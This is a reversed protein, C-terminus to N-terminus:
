KEQNGAKNQSQIEDLVDLVRPLDKAYTAIYNGAVVKKDSITFNRMKIGQGHQAWYNALKDANLEGTLSQATPYYGEEEGGSFFGSTLNCLCYDLFHEANQEKIAPNFCVNFMYDNVLKAIEGGDAAGSTDYYGCGVGAGSGALKNALQYVIFTTTSSRTKELLIPLGESTDTQTARPSATGILADDSIARIDDLLNREPDIYRSKFIEFVRQSITRMGAIALRQVLLGDTSANMDDHVILATHVNHIQGQRDASCQLRFLLLDFLGLVGRSDEALRDILGNASHKHEGFIRHAIEIVNAPTNANRKGGTRGWGARDLLMILNYISLGRLGRGGIDISSYRPLYKVIMNIADDAALNKFEHSRSVLIRWFQEHADEGGKLDFESGSLVEEVTAGGIIRNVADQYLRFTERPQPTAFRVILKLYKELNRHPRSNFCARSARVSEDVSGYVGLGLSGCGFLQELLFADSGNNLKIFESFSESNVYEYISSVAKTKISFIGSRGETEEHYIRRFIGPYNLHLLMLNILDAAHFDTRSLDTKEIQMMLVANVFRKIKRMDGILPMYKASHDGELINALESLVSALKLMTESPVSLYKDEDKNWERRLFHTLASSDVFLSLKINVFKEIFQRAREGDEKGVFLNEMDYCLIYTAQTLKFTRQVTFLVNNVAKPELRDLDDIVIILRRHIRKLVDDIEELLEDITESAPMLSLKFGLFSFDAKGKLMRSYRTAIPRFEPVFVQHQIEAALDRLLRDALDPDSAYRLPEFRCVIVEGAANQRWYNDAMNIFSTKGTGWPADVGYILGSHSGSELVTQAFHIAQEHSSLVDDNADQIENDTLFFLQYPRTKRRALITRTLSSAMMITLFTAVWLTWLPSAKGIHEHFAQMLPLPTNNALVGILLSLLLDVRQSRVLLKFNNGIGRVAVYWVILALLGGSVTLVIVPNVNEGYAMLGTGGIRAIRFVEALAFGLVLARVFVIIEPMKTSSHNEEM